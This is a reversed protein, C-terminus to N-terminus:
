DLEKRKRLEYNEFREKKKRYPNTIYKNFSYLSASKGKDLDRKL